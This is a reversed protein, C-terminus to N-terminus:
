AQRRDASMRGRNSFAARAAACRSAPSSSASSGSRASSVVDHAQQRDGCLRRGPRHEGVGVDGGGGAQVPQAAAQPRAKLVVHPREDAPGICRHLHPHRLLVHQEVPDGVPGPAHDGLFEGQGPDGGLVLTNEGQRPGAPKRVVGAGNIGADVVEREPQVPQVLAPDGREGRDGLVVALREQALVADDPVLLGAGDQSVLGAGRQPRPDGGHLVDGVVALQQRGVPVPRTEPGPTFSRGTDHGSCRGSRLHHDLGLGQAVLDQPRQQRRAQVQDVHESRVDHVQPGLQLGLALGPAVDLPRPMQPVAVPKGREDLFMQPRPLRQRPNLVELHGLAEAQPPVRLIRQQCGVELVQQPRRSVTVNVLREEGLGPRQQLLRDGLDAGLVQPTAVRGVGRARVGALQDRPRQRQRVPGRIGQDPDGPM